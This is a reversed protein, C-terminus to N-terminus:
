RPGGFKDSYLKTHRYSLPISDFFFGFIGFYCIAGCATFTVDLCARGASTINCIIHPRWVLPESDQWPSRPLGLHFALLEEFRDKHLEPAEHQDPTCIM